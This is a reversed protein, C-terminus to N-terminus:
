IMFLRDALLLRQNLDHPLKIVKPLDALVRDAARDLRDRYVSDPLRVGDVAPPIDSDVCSKLIIDYTLCWRKLFPIFLGFDGGEAEEITQANKSIKCDLDHALIDPIGRDCIAIGDFRDMVEVERKLQAAALWISSLSTQALNLPLPCDRAPDPLSRIEFGRGQLNEELAAAFTSKGTSFAGTILVKM